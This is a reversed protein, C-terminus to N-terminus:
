VREESRHGIVPYGVSDRVNELDILQWLKSPTLSDLLGNLSVQVMAFPFPDILKEAEQRLPYAPDRWRNALEALAVVIDGQAMSAIQTDM